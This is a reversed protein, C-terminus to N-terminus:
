KADVGKKALSILHFVLSKVEKHSLDRNSMGELIGVMSIFVDARFLSYCGDFEVILRDLYSKYTTFDNKQVCDEYIGLIAFLRNVSRDTYTKLSEKTAHTVESVM